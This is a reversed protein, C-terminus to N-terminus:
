YLAYATGLHEPLLSPESGSVGAAAFFAANDAGLNPGRHAIRPSFGDLRFPLGPLRTGGAEVFWGRAALQPDAALDAASAVHGAALGASRLTAIAAALERTAVWEGILRDLEQHRERRGALTAYCADQAAGGLLAALTQWEADSRVTLLLWRDTGQAAYCGQPAHRAHRNGLPAPQRGSRAVEAFFEGAFWATTECESLDIHQGQGDRQRQWLATMAACIGMIGNMVDMERVRHAPSQADYATLSQLGSIAELTGGYGCYGAYPGTAGFASMALLIIDPKLERLREYGYGKADMVGPRSNEIVVDAGRVLEDLVARHEPRKLDLTVSKKGRHLQWFRPHDNVKGPYGGRMGDLRQPYEIKIVEAGYDAFFRAAHPGAWDHTFDLVRLGAFPAKSNGEGAQPLPHGSPGPSPSHLKRATVSVREGLGEGALPLPSYPADRWPSRPARFPAGPMTAMVGDPRPQEIFFGREINQPEGLADPMSALYSWALRHKQGLHFIERKDHAMLWPRMLAETESRHAIRGGMPALKEDLLGPAEFLSAARLWHRIPGGIITAQGDACAYTRWPVMAHEDGNRRALKGLNLFETIAVEYNEMASERISLDITAGGGERERRLLAMLAACYANMGATLEAIRPRANLPERTGSGTSQMLGSLGYLTLDSAPARCDPGDQGFPTIQVLVLSPNLARLRAADLGQAALVGHGWGDVLVDVGAVWAAIDTAALETKATHFWAQEDADLEFGALGAPAPRHLVEAGFGALLKGCFAAAVHGSLELDSLNDLSAM